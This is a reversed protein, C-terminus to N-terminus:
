ANKPYARRYKNAKEKDPTKQMERSDKSLGQELKRAKGKKKKEIISDRCKHLNREFVLSGNAHGLILIWLSGDPRRGGCHEKQRRADDGHMFKSHRDPLPSFVRLVM